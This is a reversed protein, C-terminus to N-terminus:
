FDDENRPAGRTLVSSPRIPTASTVPVGLQAELNRRARYEKQQQKKAKAREDDTNYKKPRGRGSTGAVSDLADKTSPSVDKFTTRRRTIAEPTVSLSREFDKKREEAVKGGIKRDYMHLGALPRAMGIQEYIHEAQQVVPHILPPPPASAQYLYQVPNVIQQIPPTKQISRRAKRMTRSGINVNVIKSQKQKQKQKQVEKRNRKPIKKNVNKREPM